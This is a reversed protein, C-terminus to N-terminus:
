EAGCDGDLEAAAVGLGCGLEDWGTAKDSSAGKSAEEGWRDGRPFLRDMWGLEGDTSRDNGSGGVWVTSSCVGRGGLKSLAEAVEHYVGDALRRQNDITQTCHVRNGRPQCKQNYWWAFKM